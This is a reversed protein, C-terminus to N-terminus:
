SCKILGRAELEKWKLQARESAPEPPLAAMERSAAERRLAKATKIDKRINKVTQSVGDGRAHPLNTQCGQVEDPRVKDPLPDDTTINGPRPPKPADTKIVRGDRIISIKSQRDYTLADAYQRWQFAWTYRGNSQCVDANQLAETILRQSDMSSKVGAKAM